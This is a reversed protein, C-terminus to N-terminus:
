YNIYAKINSLVYDYYEYMEENDRHAIIKGALNNGEIM